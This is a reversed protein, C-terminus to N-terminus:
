EDGPAGKTKPKASPIYVAKAESLQANIDAQAQAKWAEIDAKAQTKLNKLDEELDAKAAELAQIELVLEDKSRVLNEFVTLEDQTTESEDLLPETLKLAGAEILRLIEAQDKKSKPWEVLDGANVVSGKGFDIQTTAAYTKSM